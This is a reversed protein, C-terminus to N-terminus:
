RRAGILHDIRRGLALERGSVLRKSGPRSFFIILKKKKKKKVEKGKYRTNAKV